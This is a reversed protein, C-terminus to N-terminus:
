RASSCTPWNGCTAQGTITCAPARAHRPRDAPCAQGHARRVAPRLAGGAAPHRSGAGAAAAGAGPLHEPPLVPRRPINRGAGGGVSGPQHGCRGPRRGQRDAHRRRAGAGAGASVRLLKVQMELPLEGIEDLFITGRHALEFRGKKQQVAGTFAGREHGFLESEVLTPPLAACNVKVMVGRRRQSADIFRALGDAGQRHRDRRPDAGDFRNPAVMEISKFVARM